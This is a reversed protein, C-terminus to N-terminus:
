KNNKLKLMKAKYLIADLVGKIIKKDEEGLQQAEEFYSLLEKDETGANSDSYDSILYDMSVGFIEAMKRINEAAGRLSLSPTLYDDIAGLKFAAL